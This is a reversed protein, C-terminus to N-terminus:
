EVSQNRWAQVSALAKDTGIQKLAQAAAEHVATPHTDYLAHILDPVAAPNGLAGLAHAATLRLRTIDMEWQAMGEAEAVQSRLDGSPHTRSRQANSAQAEDYAACHASAQLAALFTPLISPDNRKALIDIAHNAVWIDDSHAAQIFAPLVSPDPDDQLLDMAQFRATWNHETTITRILVQKMPSPLPFPRLARLAADRVKWHTDHLAHQLDLLVSPDHTFNSLTQIARCRQSPSYIKLQLRALGIIIQKFM